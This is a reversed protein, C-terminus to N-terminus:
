PIGLRAAAAPRTLGEVDCLVVAARYKESLRSLEADVISEEAPPPDGPAPRDPLSGSPTERRRRVARVSRAELATRHAVGFLWGALRHPDRVDKARRVLVLF